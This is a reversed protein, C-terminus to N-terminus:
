QRVTCHQTKGWPHTIPTDVTGLNNWEHHGM